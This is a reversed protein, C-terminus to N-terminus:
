SAIYKAFFAVSEPGTVTLDDYLDFHNKGNVVVLRKPEKAVGIAIKSHFLSQAESGAIMLLPRPSILHQFHFSDYLVMMDYSLPPVRQTSRPHKGRSTGYYAPADNMFDGNPKVREPNTDLLIPTDPHEGNAVDTRWAAAAQLAQQIAAGNFDENSERVGGRRTMDGVCVASITVLAKIRLDSQTAFSTYGGSACIGLLGIREPDINISARLTTLYSVAAKIDEARQYPNELGRPEGTSEGQFAADYTLAYFGQKAFAVAYTTPNQEKVGTWPHAIIISAGKRDAAGPAPAHLEGAISLLSSPFTVKTPAAM